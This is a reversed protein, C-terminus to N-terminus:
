DAVTDLTIKTRNALDLKDLGKAFTEQFVRDFSGDTKAAALGKEIRNALVAHQPAAYLYFALDTELLLQKEIVIDPHKESNQALEPLAENVGRSFGDVRGAALVAFMGQYSPWKLIDLNAQEMMRTINWKSGSVFSLRRLDNLNNILSFLHQRDRRILFVRKGALGRDLKHDIRRYKQDHTVNGPLLLLNVREGKSLEFEMRSREMELGSFLFQWDKEATETKQLALETFARAYTARIDGEVARPYMVVTDMARAPVSYLLLIAAIASLLATVARQNPLVIM